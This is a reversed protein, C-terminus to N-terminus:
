NLLKIILERYKVEDGPSYGIIHAQIIGSRDIFFTQPVTRIGYVEVVRGHADVLVPYDVGLGKIFTGVYGQETTDTCIGALVLGSDEFTKWMSQLEPMEKRCPVCHVSWFNLVVGKGKQANLYFRDGKLDDLLFDPAPRGTEIPRTCSGALFLVAVVNIFFIFPCNGIKM